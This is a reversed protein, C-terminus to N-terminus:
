AEKQWQARSRLTVLATAEDPVILAGTYVLRYLPHVPEFGEARTAAAVDGLALPGDGAERWVDRLFDRVGPTCFSPTAYGHLFALNALAVGRPLITLAIDDPLTAREAFMLPRTTAVDLVWDREQAYKGWRAIQRRADDNLLKAAPKVYHLRPPGAAWHSLFDITMREHTIAQGIYRLCARNRELTWALLLEASISEWPVSHGLPDGKYSTADGAYNGGFTNVPRQPGEGPPSPKFSRARM